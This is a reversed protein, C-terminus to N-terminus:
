GTRVHGKKPKRSKKCMYQKRPGKDAGDACLRQRKELPSQIRATRPRGAKRPLAGPMQLVSIAGCWVDAPSVMCSTFGSKFQLQWYATRDQESVLLLLWDSLHGHAKALMAM